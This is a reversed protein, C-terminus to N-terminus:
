LSVNQVRVDAGSVAREDAGYRAAVCEARKTNLLNQGLQLSNAVFDAVEACPKHM